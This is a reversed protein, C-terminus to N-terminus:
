KESAPVISDNSYADWDFNEDPEASTVPAVNKAAKEAAAAQMEKQEESM